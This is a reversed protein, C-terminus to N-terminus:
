EANAEAIMRRLKEIDDATTRIFRALIRGVLSPAVTPVGVPGVIGASFATASTGMLPLEHVSPLDAGCTVDSNGWRAAWNM